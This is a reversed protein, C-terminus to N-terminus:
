TKTSPPDWACCAYEMHPRVLATCAQEKVRERCKSLNRRVFGLAKNAKATVKKVHEDWSLDTSIEVGLYTSHKSPELVHGMLQYNQIIPSRCKHVRQVVCTKANFQM